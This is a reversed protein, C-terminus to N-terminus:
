FQSRRCGLPPSFRSTVELEADLYRISGRADTSDTRAPLIRVTSLYIRSSHTKFQFAVSTNRPTARQFSTQGPAKPARPGIRQLAGAMLQEWGVFNEKVEIGQPTIEFERIDRDHKTGRAKFIVLSRKLASEVEVNRLSIVNDM